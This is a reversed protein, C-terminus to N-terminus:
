QAARELFNWIIAVDRSGHAAPVLRKLAALADAATATEPDAEPCEDLALEILADKKFTWKRDHIGEEDDEFENVIFAVEDDGYGKRKSKVFVTKREDTIKDGKRIKSAPKKM